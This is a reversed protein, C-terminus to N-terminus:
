RTLWGWFARRKLREHLEAITERHEALKAEYGKIVAEHEADDQDIEQKLRAIEQSAAATMKVQEEYSRHLEINSDVLGRVTDPSPFYDLKGVIRREAALRDKSWVTM